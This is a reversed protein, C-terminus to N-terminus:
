QRKFKDALAALKANRRELEEKQAIEAKRQEAQKKFRARLLELAYARHEDPVADGASGDLDFRVTANAMAKLYPTSKTHFALARRLIKPSAEPLAAFVQKDIGIALPRCERFVDFRAQLDKILARAEKTLDVAASVEDNM